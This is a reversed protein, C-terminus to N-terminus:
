FSVNEHPIAKLIIAGDENVSIDLLQGEKWGLEELIGDPFTLIGDGSGDPADEITTVYSKTM